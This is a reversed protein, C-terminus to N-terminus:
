KNLKGQFALIAREKATLPRTSAMANTITKKAPAAAANGDKATPAPAQPAAPSAKSIRDQIKKLKALKIAEDVLYEEVQQAAEEVSMLVKEKAFTKEILKVVDNISGTAKITEYAPDSNVLQSAERRLQTVAQQYSEESQAKRDSEAKEQADKLAKEQAEVRAQLRQIALEEPKPQNLAAQTLQDYTLGKENLVSWPDKLLQDVPVYKTPDPTQAIQAKAADQQAKFEVMQRKLDQAQLRLAKEKRALQAYQSSLPTEEQTSAPKPPQEGNTDAQVEAAAKEETTKPPQVASLEEPAVKTANVQPIEPNKIEPAAPAQADPNEGMLRAIARERATQGSQEAKATPPQPISPGQKPEIQM